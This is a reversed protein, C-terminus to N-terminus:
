PGQQFYRGHRSRPLVVTFTSGQAPTSNVTIDGGHARVFALALSLGLGNGQKSRSRDCRYFREFIRASENSSIGIGTDEISLTVREGEAVLKITVRGGAPMYKLGNDLLNAVVRQLRQRDGHLHCHDPFDGTITIQKDEAIPQFLELADHVLEVLDIDTLKLKAAGSEAEAIDLTTNIIELLRDCEETTAAAMAEAEAKSGGSTMSTEASARIRGLPSRLDHALNDTMERMGIVLAQIRDVMTNFTRALTDLEDGQFRVEVRRHLAGDAIETATRTVEQVGRLARRAMFWGIPGGLLTAILFGRLLAAILEEDEELSEGFELVLGPAITGYIIRVKDARGPLALTALIPEDTSDVRALVDLPNGLGPWSSLDTALIQRGDPAWLRIFDHSAEEGQTEKAMETKVRDLGGSQMFSVFEETDGELDEDTRDQVVAVVSAYVLAFAVISSAAFIGAYWLTLRLALTHGLSRLTKLFM